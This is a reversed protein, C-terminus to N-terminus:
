NYFFFFCNMFYCPLLLHDPSIENERGWKLPALNNKASPYDYSIRRRCSILEPNKGAEEYSLIPNLLCVNRLLLLRLYKRVAFVAILVDNRPTVGFM